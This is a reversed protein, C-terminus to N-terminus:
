KEFQVGISGDRAMPRRLAPFDSGHSVIFGSIRRCRLRIM